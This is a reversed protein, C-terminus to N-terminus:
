RRARNHLDVPSMRPAGRADVSNNGTRVTVVLLPFSATDNMRIASLPNGVHVSKGSM